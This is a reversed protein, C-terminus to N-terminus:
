SQVEVNEEFVASSFIAREIHPDTDLKVLVQRIQNCEMIDMKLNLNQTVYTFLDAFLRDFLGMLIDNEQPSRTKLWGQFNLKVSVVLVKLRIIIKLIIQM